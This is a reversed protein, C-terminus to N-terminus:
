HHDHCLVARLQRAWDDVPWYQQDLQVVQLAGYLSNTIVVADASLLTHLSISTVAVPQGQTHYWDIVKQRMVGAVGCTNLSPTIVQGNIRIFVNGSVAEIVHDAYDLLLGDFCAPDHTEARALVNELRNLHKIGALLPQSALRTQCLYLRIGQSFLEAPYEPMPLRMLLRDPTSVPAPAYGRGGEGRTIIIKLVSARQAESHTAQLLRKTDQMLLEATPCVIALKQCDAVLKQYHLPWHQVIGDTYRMTRFVGDGYALGRNLTSLNAMLQGNICYHETRM